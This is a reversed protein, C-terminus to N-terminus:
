KDQFRNEFNPKFLKLHSPHVSSRYKFNFLMGM